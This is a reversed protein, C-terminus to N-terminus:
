FIMKEIILSLKQVKKIRSHLDQHSHTILSKEFEEYEDFKIDKFLVIIIKQLREIGVSTHYLFSFLPSSEEICIMENLAAIGDYIFEGSIGLEYGMNFNKYVWVQNM